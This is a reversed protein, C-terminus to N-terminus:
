LFNYEIQRCKTTIRHDEAFGSESSMIRNDVPGVVGYGESRAETLSM